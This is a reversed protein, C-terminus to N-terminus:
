EVVFGPVKIRMRFVTKKEDACNILSVNVGASFFRYCRGHDDCQLVIRFHGFNFFEVSFSSKEVYMLCISDSLINRM